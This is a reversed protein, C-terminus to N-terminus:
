AHDQRLAANARPGVRTPRAPTRPTSGRPAPQAVGPRAGSAARGRRRTDTVMRTLRLALAATMAATPLKPRLVAVREEASRGRGWRVLHALREHSPSGDMARVLVVPLPMAGGPGMQTEIAIELGCLGPLAPTPRVGLRLEDAPGGGRPFRGLLLLELGSQRGLRRRIRELAPAASSVPDGPLESPRGTCFIPVLSAAGLATVVALYPSAAFLSWAGVAIGAVAGVFLVFGLPSGADLWRGPLADRVRPLSAEAGLDRWEGPGRLPPALRPPAASALLMAAVLLLGAVTPEDGFVALGAAATLMAGALAARLAVPVPVLARPIANRRACARVLTRWKLAVLTAYVLALLGGAGLAAFRRQQSDAAALQPAPTAAAALTPAGGGFARADALVRWVVPEGEAVYPRVVELEDKDAARRVTGLFVGGLDNAVDNAAGTELPPLAPADPAPPLRFVVKASDFGQPFRPGVWRIEAQGSHVRVLGRAMLDTRYGFRLLYTGRRLGKEHDIELALTGDDRQAVILPLPSTARGAETPTVSADPLLEADADVGPLEWTRLPGGRVRLVLEHQVTAIGERGIDLDVADSRVSTEVWARATVPWAAIGVLAAAVLGHRIPPYM